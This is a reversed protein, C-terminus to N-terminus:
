AARQTLRDEELLRRRSAGALAVVDALDDAIKSIDNRVESPTTVLREAARVQSLANRLQREVEILAWYTEHEQAM